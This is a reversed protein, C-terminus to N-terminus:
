IDTESSAILSEPLLTVTRDLLTLAGNMTLLRDNSYNLSASRLDRFNREIQIVSDKKYGSFLGAVELLRDVARFTMESAVVKLNNLHIQTSTSSLSTKDRRRVLVEDRVVGLYAAVLEIDIRARAIREAMLESHRAKGRSRVLTLVNSLAGRATGLWIASWALHGAPIMSEIAVRKFEGPEGIVQHAPVSGGLRMGQSETGRMGLTDWTGFSELSLQQRDAYFLTVRHDAADPSERMTVLFGEAHAGGTVIPTEREFRLNEADGEVAARGSLLHGGKGPESTISALYVEGSAVRPLLEDRLHQSGFQVICDIQQCHMAWIMATSSCASALMGALAILDGLDGGSGGYEQPVLLGMLGNARLLQVAEDPFRASSDTAAAQARLVPLVSRAERYAAAIADSQIETM